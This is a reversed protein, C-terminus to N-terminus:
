SVVVAFRYLSSKLNSSIAERQECYSSHRLYKRLELADNRPPVVIAM